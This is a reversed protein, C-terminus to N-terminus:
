EDETAVDYLFLGGATGAAALALLGAGYAAARAVEVTLSLGPDIRGSTSFQDELLAFGVLNVSLAGVSVLASAGALAAAGLTFPWIGITVPPAGDDAYSPEFRPGTHLPVVARGGIFGDAYARSFPTAFLAAVLPEREALTGVARSRPADDFRLADLAYAGSGRPVLLAERADAQVVFFRSGVLALVVEQDKARFLEAYPVGQDDIVRVRQPDNGGIRLFREVSGDDLARLAANPRQVPAAAHVALRARPDAVDNSAAHIYSAVEAYELRGDRNVDAAGLLASRLLYSFIGSGLSASEHVAASSSTSVLVGTRAWVSPDHRAEQSEIVDLIAPTLPVAGSEEEDGRANVMFYSACADLIVHNLDTPAGAVVQRYLDDRTLAGDAFVVYGEGGPTVDGHGAFFFVLETSRGKDKSQRVHWTLEGLVRSLEVLTPPAALAALAPYRSASERDFTTLLWSKTSAGVMLEYLRAADDDAHKLRPRPDPAGSNYGIAIVYREVDGTSSAPQAPSAGPAALAFALALAATM